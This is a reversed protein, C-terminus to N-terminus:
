KEGRKLARNTRVGRKDPKQRDMKIKPQSAFQQKLVERNHLSQETEAYLTQAIPASGRQESLKKIIIELQYPERKIILIDDVKVATAPKVRQSNLSVKGNKIAKVALQRTKYFRAAWLWKDIRVINKTQM